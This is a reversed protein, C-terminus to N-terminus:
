FAAIFNRVLHRTNQETKREVFELIDGVESCCVVGLVWHGIFLLVVFRPDEFKLRLKLYIIFDLRATSCPCTVPVRSFAGLLCIQKRDCYQLVTVTCYWTRLKM